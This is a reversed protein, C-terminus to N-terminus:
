SRRSRRACSRSATSTWSCRSARGPATSACGTRATSSASCPRPGSSTSATTPACSIASRRAGRPAHDLHRRRGEDRLRARRGQHAPHLRRRPHRHDGPGRRHRHLRDEGQAADAAHHPPARLLARLRGRLAHPRVARGRLHRGVPRRDRQPRHQRLGRALLPRGRRARPDGRRRRAAPHPPAPHEPAHHRAGQEPAGLAGGRRRLDGDARAHHGRVAAERPDDPRRGPAPRVRGAPPPVQHLRGGRHQGRPVEGGRQRLRRVRAGPDPDRAWARERLGGSQRALGQPRPAKRRENRSLRYRNWLTHTRRRRTTAPGCFSAFGSGTEAIDPNPVANRGGFPTPQAGPMSGRSSAVPCAASTREPSTDAWSSTCPAISRTSARFPSSLATIWGSKSFASAVSGAAPGKWPTGITTFSRAQWVAPSGYWSPM